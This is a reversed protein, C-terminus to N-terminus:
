EKQPALKLGVSQLAAATMKQVEQMFWVPRSKEDMAKGSPDYVEGDQLFVAEDGNTLKIAPHTDTVRWENRGPVKTLVHVGRLNLM